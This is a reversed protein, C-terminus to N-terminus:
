SFLRDCWFPNVFIFNINLTFNLFEFSSSNHPTKLLSM